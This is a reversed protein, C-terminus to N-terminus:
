ISSPAVGSAPNVFLHGIAEGPAAGALKAARTLIVEELSVTRTTQTEESAANVSTESVPAGPSVLAALEIERSSQGQGIDVGGAM